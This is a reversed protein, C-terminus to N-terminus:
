SKWYRTPRSSAAASTPSHANTTPTTSRSMGRCPRTASSASSRAAPVSGSCWRPASSRRRERWNPPAGYEQGVRWINWEYNKQMSSSAQPWWPVNIIKFGANILSQHGGGWAMVVVDRDMKPDIWFGEWIITKKGHGKIMANLRNVFYGYLEGTGMKKAALYAKGEDSYQWNPWYTEDGGIHIYPSSRFVNALDAIIKEFAPYIEAENALNIMGSIGGYKGTKPDKMGFIKEMGRQLSYSHGSAEIEPVITVGRLDAYRVFAKLEELNYPSPGGDGGNWGPVSGVGSLEQLPVDLHHRRLPAPAPLPDQVPPM